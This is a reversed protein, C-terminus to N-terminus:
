DGLMERKIAEGIEVASRGTFQGARAQAYGREIEARLEEEMAELRQLAEIGAAYVADESVYEGTRVKEKVYAKVKANM